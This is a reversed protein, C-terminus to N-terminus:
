NESESPINALGNLGTVVSALDQELNAISPGTYKAMIQGQPDMLFRTPLIQVNFDKIVKADMGTGLWVFHGPREEEDFLAENIVSDPEVSVSIYQFARVDLAAAIGNRSEFERQYIQEAPDFFELIVFKGKVSSTSLEDGARNVLKFAPAVMGPQLNELEYTAKNAWEAWESKPYTKKLIGATKIADSHLFSDAYAIVKEALLGPRKSEPVREMYRDILAISSDLGSVRAVSRRAARIVEVISQNDVPVVPYRAVVTSDSWGEMMVISEALSLNGGITGPYTNPISWLITSTQANIRFLDNTSYGTGKLLGVMQQNHGAKANRYASWAANENSVIRLGRGGLPYAGTVQISDGDVLVIDDVSLNTGAREVVIPYIGSEPAHVQMTFAGMKDTIATGLTDVDGQKQTVVSIRFGEFNGTSDVEARVKLTGHVYSEVPYTSDSSCGLAGITIGILVLITSTFRTKPM